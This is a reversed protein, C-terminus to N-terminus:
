LTFVVTTADPAETKELNGLLSAPGNEDNIKLMRDFTFKVDESTLDHGNAFKLGEKLKVTYETPTTYSASEALDPQPTTDKAGPATNLLFGYVQNMVFFSGNDYSGAPDLSTIKDTTGTTLGSGADDGSGGSTKACGSAAAVAAVSLAVFTRRNIRM